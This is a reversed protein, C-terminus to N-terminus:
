NPTGENEERRSRLLQIFTDSVTHDQTDAAYDILRRELARADDLPLLRALQLYVGRFRTDGLHKEPKDNDPGLFAQVVFFDAIKDHRFHWETRSKGGEDLSRSVAMKHHEMCQLEEAFEGVSLTDEDKLRMQYVAEAFQRLPFKHLHKQRYDEAMIRYQQQQLRFLDPTEGRALMAAVLTLDMPNSLLQRMAALTEPSQQPDLTATLYHRCTQEYANGVLQADDPLNDKRTLLFTEIQSETLPELVYSKATAPPTWELPQTSMLINGKFYSEVFGTIKARADASVENLGDICIDLAGSYILNRLFAPDQAPGHLKAQIAELVGGVCKRAPLYVVVRRARKVLLCLFMTKGIGSEGELVIQGRIASIADCLPRQRGSIKEKVVSDPFYAAEDFADLAADAVLSPKFPAFLKTRLFPVWTLAFGVYGLGTFRRVWPNWFFIAQVIRSLPYVTILALWFLVHGLAIKAITLVYDTAEVSAIVQRVAAAHTSGVAELNTAHTKLLPLDDAKWHGKQAVTAIQTELDRRLKPFPESSPWAQKFVHLTKVALDHNQGIAATPRTIPEGIWATLTEIDPNGGGLFHALFRVESLRFSDEYSVNLVELILKMSLPGKKILAESAAKKEFPDRLLAILKSIETKNLTDPVFTLRLVTPPSQTVPIVYGLKDKLPEGLKSLAIAAASRVSLAPDHRQAELLRPTQNKAVLGLNGLTETIAERVSSDPDSLLKALQSVQQPAVVGLGGLIQAAKKRVDPDPDSLLEILQPRLEKAASGSKALAKAIAERVSSHPDRLLEILGVIQEKSIERLVSLAEVTAERVTSNPDDLLEILHPIQDKAVNDLRGLQIVTGRRIYEKRHGLLQALRAQDKTLVWLGTLVQAVATQVNPDPDSLLEMLRPAQDKVEMGLKGLTMIAAERVNFDSDRLLEILRPIQDKSAMGFKGLGKAALQRSITEASNLMKVFRPLQEKARDGLTTFLKDSGESNVAMWLVQPNEDKLAAWFGEVQWAFPKADDQAAHSFNTIALTCFLFIRSKIWM